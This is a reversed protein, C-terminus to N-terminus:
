TYNGCNRTSVHVERLKKYEKEDTREFMYVLGPGVACAFGKSFSVLATVARSGSGISEGDLESISEAVSRISSLHVLVNWNHVSSM